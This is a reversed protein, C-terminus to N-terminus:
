STPNPGSMGKGKGVGENLDGGSSTAEVPLRRLTPQRWEKSSRSMKGTNPENPQGMYVGGNPQGSPSNSSDGVVVSFVRSCAIFNFVVVSNGLQWV